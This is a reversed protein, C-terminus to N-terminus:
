EPLYMDGFYHYWPSRYNEWNSPRLRTPLFIDEFIQRAALYYSLEDAGTALAEEQEPTQMQYINVIPFRSVIPALREAWRRTDDLPDLGAVYAYTTRYGMDCSARLTAEIEELTTKAKHRGLRQRRQTFCDVAYAFSLPRCPQLTELAQVSKIESGLFFTEGSFGLDRAIQCVTVIHGTAAEESPFLGTVVAIQELSSLDTWGQNAIVERLFGEIQAESELRTTDKLVTEDYLPYHHICYRCGHCEGRRNSNLNLVRRGKRFYSCDCTDTEVESTQGLHLDSFRLAGASDIFFQSNGGGRVPVAFYMPPKPSFAEDCLFRARYNVPVVGDAIWVGTRNLECFVTEPLPVSYRESLSVFEAVSCVANRAVYLTSM